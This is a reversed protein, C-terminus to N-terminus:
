NPKARWMPAGTSQGPRFTRSAARGPLDHAQGMERKSMKKQKKKKATQKKETEKISKGNRSNKLFKWIPVFNLILDFNL